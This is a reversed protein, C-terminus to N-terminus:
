DSLVITQSGWAGRGSATYVRCDPLMCGAYIVDDLELDRYWRGTHCRVHELVVAFEVSPAGHLRIHLLVEAGGEIRHRGKQKM